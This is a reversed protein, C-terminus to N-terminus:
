WVQIGLAEADNATIERKAVVEVPIMVDVIYLTQEGRQWSEVEAPSAMIGDEDTLLNTCITGNDEMIGWDDLKDSVDQCSSVAKILEHMNNYTGRVDIDWENVFRGQGNEYDDVHMTVWGRGALIKMNDPLMGEKLSRRRTNRKSEKVTNCRGRKIVNGNEDSIFYYNYLDCRSAYKVADAVNDFEFEDSLNGSAGNMILTYKKSGTIKVM